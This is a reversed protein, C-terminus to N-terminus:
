PSLNKPVSQAPASAPASSAAAAASAARFCCPAYISFQVPSHYNAIPRNPLLIMMSPLEQSPLNRRAREIDDVVSTAQQFFESNLFAELFASPRASTGKQFKDNLTAATPAHHPHLAPTPQEPEAEDTAAKAALSAFIDTTTSKERTTAM